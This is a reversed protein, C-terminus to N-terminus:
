SNTLPRSFPTLRPHLLRNLYMWTRMRLETAIWKLPTTAEVAAGKRKKALEELRGAPRYLLSVFDSPPVYDNRPAIANLLSNM